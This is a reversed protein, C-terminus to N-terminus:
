GRAAGTRIRGLDELQAPVWRDLRNRGIAARLGRARRAREPEEMELGASLAEATETVDFPNVGLVHRGLEAFAGANESLVLVGNQQNLAPGEKAVLNMGDIVPNVLLVDYLQYAAISMPLDDNVLMEVPQWGPRGFRENIRDVARSCEDMYERYEPIADRSPTLLALFKVKGTWEPKRTLLEQYAAFGRLLNKSLEARDVRVILETEGRWDEIWRRAAEAEASEALARLAGLDISIPYTGVHVERGNWRVVRRRLDVRAGDLEKCALLFHDGWRVSHFGVLDAGLLGGLLEERMFTPLIRLYVPGAFPIHSFHVIAAGPERRRLLEPALSLHYDQVFYAPPEAMRKGEDALAGAFEENVQRYARWHERVEEDFQPVSTVDWLYHHLFWLVRNSIGNYFADYTQPDFALYRLSYKAGNGPLDVWGDKSRERDEDTMASAIWLGGSRQLAGTLASVLGGAGRRAVIEGEERVFSVPGRNSAIVIEHETRLPETEDV